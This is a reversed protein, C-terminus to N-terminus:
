LFLFFASFFCLAFITQLVRVEDLYSVWITYKGTESLPCDKSVAENFIPQLNDVVSEGKAESQAKSFQFYEVWVQASDPNAKTAKQFCEIAHKPNSHRVARALHVLLMGHAHASTECAAIARELVAIGAEAGAHRKEFNSRRVFLEVL